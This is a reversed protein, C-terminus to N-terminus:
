HQQRERRRARHSRPAAATATPADFGGLQIAAGTSKHLQLLQDRLGKIEGELRARDEAAEKRIAAMDEACRLREAAQEAKLQAVEARHEAAQDALMKMLDERLSADAEAKVKKLPAWQKAIVGLLALFCALTTYFTPTLGHIAVPIADSAGAM